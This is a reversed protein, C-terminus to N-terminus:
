SYSGYIGDKEPTALNLDPSPAINLLFLCVGEQRSWTIPLLGTCGLLMWYSSCFRRNPVARYVLVCTQLVSMGIYLVLFLASVFELSAM